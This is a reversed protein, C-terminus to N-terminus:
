RSVSCYLCASRQASVHIRPFHAHVEPPVNEGGQRGEAPADLLPMSPTCGMHLTDCIPDAARIIGRGIREALRELSRTVLKPVRPKMLLAKIRRRRDHVFRWVRARPRTPPEFRPGAAARASGGDRTRALSRMMKPKKTWPIKHTQPVNANKSVGPEQSLGPSM